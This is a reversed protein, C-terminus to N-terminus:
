NPVIHKKDNQEQCFLLVEILLTGFLLVLLLLLLALSVPAFGEDGGPPLHTCAPHSSHPLLHLETGKM